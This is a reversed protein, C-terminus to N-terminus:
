KKYNGYKYLEYLYFVKKSTRYYKNDFYLFLFFNLFYLKSFHYKKLKTIEGHCLSIWKELVKQCKQLKSGLDVLGIDRHYLILVFTWCQWNIVDVISIKSNPQFYIINKLNRQKLRWRVICYFIKNVDFENLIIVSIIFISGFKLVLYAKQVAAQLNKRLRPFNFEMVVIPLKIIKYGSFCKYHWAWFM